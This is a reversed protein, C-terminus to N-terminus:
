HNEKMSLQPIKVIAKNDGQEPKEFKISGSLQYLLIGVVDIGTSADGMLGMDLTKIKGASYQVIYKKLDEPYPSGNDSIEIVLMTAYSSVQTSIRLLIWGSSTYNFRYDLIRSIVYSIRMPDGMFREPVDEDVIVDFTLEQGQMGYAMDRIPKLINRIDYIEENLAMNGGTLSLYEVMHDVVSLVNNSKIIVNNLTEELTDANTHREAPMTDQLITIFQQKMYDNIRMFYDSQYLAYEEKRRSEQMLTYNYYATKSLVSAIYSLFDAGRRITDKDVMPVKKCESIMLEPDVGLELATKRVREEDVEAIRVQGGVFSGIRQGELMIPAAFDVLGAHCDYVATSGTELSKLSGTRSCEECRAKGSATSRVLKMCFHSFGSPKTIPSGNEDTTLAAFGVFKSFGDQIEQLTDVGILDTLTLKM